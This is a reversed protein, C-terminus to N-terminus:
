LVDNEASDSFSPPGDQQSPDLVSLYPTELRYVYAGEAAEAISTLAHGAAYDFGSAVAATYLSISRIGLVYTKLKNVNAAQAFNEMERMLTEERKAANYIDIGVAHLGATRFAPFDRHEPTFRAIVARAIPRLASVLDVMRVQPIGDPLGVVEYVVRDQQDGIVQSCRKVYERRRRLDALTEFHVPIGVLSKERTAGMRELELGVRRLTCVDLDLYQRPHPSQSTLVEYGSVCLRGHVTRIPICLFTSIIKTRVALMPRFVYRIGDFEGTRDWHSEASEKPVADYQQLQGAVEELLSDIPPLDRLLVKGDEKVTVTKIDILETVAERGVLRQLIEEGIITCRLQAEKRSLAGFVVLYSDDDRRIFMDKDSLRSAMISRVTEHVKDHAKQWADGFKEHCRELDIVFVRDEVATYHQGLISNLRNELDVTERSRNSWRQRGGGSASPGGRDAVAEVRVLGLKALLSDLVPSKRM